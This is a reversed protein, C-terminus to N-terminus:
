IIYHDNNIISFNQVLIQMAMEGSLPKNLINKNDDNFFINKLISEELSSLIYFPICKLTKNVFIENLIENCRVGNMYNMIQDSIIFSIETGNKISNYAFYLCEVGDEADVINLKINLDSAAKKLVRITSHRTFYEDDIVIINLEKQLNNMPYPVVITDNYDLNEKKLNKNNDETYNITKNLESSLYSLKHFHLKSIYKETKSITNRRYYGFNNFGSNDLNVKFTQSDLIVTPKSISTRREVDNSLNSNKYFKSKIQKNSEEPKIKFWFTTGKGYESFFELHAGLRLTLEKVVILGLGTGFQNNDSTKSFPKFLMKQNEESIGRGTDSIEFKIFDNELFVHLNIFGNYTFKISNSILNILIQKLKWEDTKINEPLDKDKIFNLNISKDKGFKVLLSKSVDQCFNTLEEINTESVHLKIEKNMQTQSFFDFDKTLIILYNSLNTIQPLIEKLKNLMSDFQTKSIINSANSIDKLKDLLEVICLLPNKFEHAVKSLYISKSQFESKQNELIKAQTVEKFLFEVEFQGSNLKIIRCFIEFTISSIDNEVEKYVYQKEGILFFSNSQLEFPQLIKVLDETKIENSSVLYYSLAEFACNSKFDQDLFLYIKNIGLDFYSTNNISFVEKLILNSNQKIISNNIFLESQINSNSSFHESAIKQNIVPIALFKNILFKNIKSISNNQITLFGTNIMEFLNFLNENSENFFKNNYFTQKEFKEFFYAFFLAVVIFLILIFNSIFIIAFSTHIANNALFGLILYFVALIIMERFSLIKLFVLVIIIMFEIILILDNIKESYISMEFNSLNILNFLYTIFFYNSYKMLKEYKKKCIFFLFLIGLTFIFICIIKNFLLLPCSFILLNRLNEQNYFFMFILNIISFCLVFINIFNLIKYRCRINQLNYEEEIFQNKFTLNLYSTFINKEM